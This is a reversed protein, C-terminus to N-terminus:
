NNTDSLIGRSHATGLSSRPTARGTRGVPAYRAEGSRRSTASGGGHARSVAASGHGHGHGHSHGGGGGDDGRYSRADSNGGNARHTNYPGGNPPKPGAKGGNCIDVVSQPVGQGKSSSGSAPLAWM